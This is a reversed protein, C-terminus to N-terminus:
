CIIYDVRSAKLYDFDRRLYGDLLHPFFHPLKAAIAAQDTLRPFRRVHPLTLGNEDLLHCGTIAAQPNVKLWALLNSLTEPKVKMDPNLLLLYDGRAKSLALNNAKAFGLNEQNAILKVDKFETKIMLATGDASANDVVFIEFSVDRTLQLSLLNERLKDKVNWSVIVISFDM